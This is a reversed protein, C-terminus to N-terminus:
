KNYTSSEVRTEQNEEVAVREIGRHAQGDHYDGGHGRNHGDRDGHRGGSRGGNHPAM